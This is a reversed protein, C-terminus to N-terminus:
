YYNHDHAFDGGQGVAAHQSKNMAGIVRDSLERLEHDAIM